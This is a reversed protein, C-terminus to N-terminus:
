KVGPVSGKPLFQRLYSVAQSRPVGAATYTALAQNWLGYWGTRGTQATTYTKPAPPQTLTAGRPVLNKWSGSQFARASVTVPRAVPKPAYPNPDAPPTYIFQYTAPVKTPQGTKNRGQLIKVADNRAKAISAATPAGPTKGSKAALAAAARANAAARNDAAIQARTRNGANAIAVRSNASAIGLKVKSTNDLQAIYKKLDRDAIAQQNKNGLTDATTKATVLNQYVNLKTQLNAADVTQNQKLMDSVRSSESPVGSLLSALARQQANANNASAVDGAALARLNAQSGSSLAAAELSGIYNGGAATQDGLVAQAGATPIGPTPPAGPINGGSAQAAANQAGLAASGANGQAVTAQQIGAIRSALDQYVSNGAAGRAAYDASTAAATPYGMAALRQENAVDSNYASQATTQIQSPNFPDSLTFQDYPSVGAKSGGGGTGSGKIRPPKINFTKPVLPAKVRMPALRGSEGPTPLNLAM